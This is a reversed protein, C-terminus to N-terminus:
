LVGRRRELEERVAHMRKRSLDIGRLLMLGVVFASAPVVVFVFRIWWLTEASQASGATSSFGVWVLIMGSLATAATYGLKNMWQTVSAYVGERRNGTALEEIDCVDSVM